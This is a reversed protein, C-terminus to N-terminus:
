LKGLLKEYIGGFSGSSFLVVVDGPRTVERLRTVIADPGQEAFASRGQVCLDRAIGAPDLADGHLFREPRDVPGILAGDAHALADTLDRQIAARCMTNSRPDVAAWVRAGPFRHRLAKITERINTPHKGFDEVFRVGNREGLLAQRRRVGRFNAVARQMADAAVGCHHAAAIAMAANRVYIEGVMPVSFETGLLTFHSADPDHSIDTARVTASEGLGVALKTKTKSQAAVECANPDDANFILVGNEPLVRMLLGFAKKVAALDPYIDMQDLEVANLIALSPLYHAFKPGKDFFATDYEDGELVVIESDHLSAGMGLDEAIGGIMFAPNMGGGCLIHTLMAATTTKGHTGAVVLNRRGRLFFHRLTEPLSQYALRRNLVEELEANGRGIANGVVVLDTKVPINEACYGEILAIGRERLFESMPPFVKEDSGTVEFGQERMAVAVAGMATGCIGLFHVHRVSQNM